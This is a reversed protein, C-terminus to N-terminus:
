EDHSERDTPGPNGARPQEDGSTRCSFLRQNLFSHAKKLCINRRHYVAQVSGLGLEVRVSEITRERRYIADLLRRCKADLNAITERLLLRKQGTDVLELPSAAAHPLQDALETVDRAIRRRRWLHLNRCRNRAITVVFATPNDPVVRARRLYGLLAILTDQVIDDGDADDAGLFAGVTSRVRPEMITCIEDGATDDGDIYRDLIPNM